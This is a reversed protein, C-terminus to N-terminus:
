QCPKGKWILIFEHAKATYSHRSMVGVRQYALGGSKYFVVQDWLHLGGAAFMRIVDGPLDYIRQNRRITGIIWVIFKGPKILRISENIVLKLETLFDAYDSILSLDNSGNNYKELNWYPPCTLIMDACVNRLPAYRADGNILYAGDEFHYNQPIDIDTGIYRRGLIKAAELRTSRGAFPDIILDDEESWCLICRRALEFPFMSLTDWRGWVTRGVTDRAQNLKHRLNKRDLIWVSIPNFGLRGFESLSPDKWMPLQQMLELNDM